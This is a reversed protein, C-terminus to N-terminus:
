NVFITFIVVVYGDVLCCVREQEVSDLQVFDIPDLVVIPGHSKLYEEASM